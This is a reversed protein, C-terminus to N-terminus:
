ETVIMRRQLSGASAVIKVFYIGVGTRPGITNSWSITHMGGQQIGNLVRGVIRGKVDFVGIRVPSASPLSYEILMPGTLNRTVKLGLAAPADPDSGIGVIGTTDAVAPGIYKKSIVVDDFWAECGGDTDVFHELWFYNIKHAPNIRWRYGRSNAPSGKQGHFKKQGDIWFAQQGNSDSVPNNLIMMMEICTWKGKEVPRATTDYFLNGWYRGDGGPKMFPWYTYLFWKAFMGPEVGTSFRYATNGTVYWPYTGCNATNRTTDMTDENYCVEGVVNPWMGARPNPFDSAPYHGGIWPWHHVVTCTPDLKTYYRCYLTDWGTDSLKKYMDMWGGSIYLSAYGGSNPHKEPTLQMRMEGQFYPWNALLGNLSGEEFDETFVVNPNSKIGKDKIYKSAIGYDVQALCPFLMALVLVLHATLPSHGAFIKM